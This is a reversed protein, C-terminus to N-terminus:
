GVLVGEELGDEGHSDSKHNRPCFSGLIIIGSHYRGVLLDNMLLFYVSGKMTDRQANIM